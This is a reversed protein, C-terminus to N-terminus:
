GYLLRRGEAPDDGATNVADAYEALQRRFVALADAVLNDRTGHFKPPPRHQDPQPRMTILTRIAFHCCLHGWIKRSSWGPLSRGCCPAPPGRQHVKLEDFASEIEWRQAHAASLNDLIVYIPEGDPRRARVSRLAEWVNVASKQRRVVGWLTDDGM